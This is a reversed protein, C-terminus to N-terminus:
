KEISNARLTPHCTGQRKHRSVGIAGFYQWRQSVCVSGVDAYPMPTCYIQPLCTGPDSINLIKEPVRTRSNSVLHCNLRMERHVEKRTLCLTAARGKTKSFEMFKGTQSYAASLDKDCKPPTLYIHICHLHLHM